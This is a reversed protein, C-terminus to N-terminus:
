RSDSQIPRRISRDCRALFRAFHAHGPGGAEEASQIVAGHTPLAIEAPSIKLGKLGTCSDTAAPAGMAPFWIIAALMWGCTM